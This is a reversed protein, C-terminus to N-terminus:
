YISRRAVVLKLTEFVDRGGGSLTSIKLANYCSLAKSFGDADARNQLVLTSCLM